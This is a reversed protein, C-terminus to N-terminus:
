SHRHCIRGRLLRQLAGFRIGVAFGLWVPPRCGPGCSKRWEEASLRRMAVVASPPNTDSELAGRHWNARGDPREHSLRVAHFLTALGQEETRGAQKQDQKEDAGGAV